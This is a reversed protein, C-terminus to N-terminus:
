ISFTLHVKCLWDEGGGGFEGKSRTTMGSDGSSVITEGISKRREVRWGSIVGGRKLIVESRLLAAAESIKIARRESLVERM